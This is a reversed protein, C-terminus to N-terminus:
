DNAGAREEDMKMLLRLFAAYAGYSGIERGCVELARNKFRRVESSPLRFTLTETKEKVPKATRDEFGADQALRKVESRDAKAGSKKIDFGSVDLSDHNEM